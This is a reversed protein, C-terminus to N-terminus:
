ISKLIRCFKDIDNWVCGLMAAGYFGAKKLVPFHEPTVGGLAIVNKSCIKDTLDDLNFASVYGKKSISDFIPSLTVYEYETASLYVENIENVSHCSRSIKLLGAPAAPNRSNLHVGGLRYNAALDFHDHLKLRSYFSPDIKELLGKIDDRSAAPKRIHVYEIGSSLIKEIMEAENEMFNEATIAIKIFPAIDNVERVHNFSDKMYEVNVM